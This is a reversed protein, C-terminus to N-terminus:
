QKRLMKMTAGATLGGLTYWLVTLLKTETTRTTPADNLGMKEPMFVAGLGAAFGLILGNKILNKRKSAGLLSYYIANSIIDGTLTWQYLQKDNAPLPLNAAKLMKLLAEEGILHVKPADKDIQRYLEHILNLTVAGTLGGALATTAKMM